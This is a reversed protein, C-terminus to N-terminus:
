HRVFASNGSPENEVRRKVSVEINGNQPTPQNEPGARGGGPVGTPHVPLGM